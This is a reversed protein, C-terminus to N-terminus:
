NVYVVKLVDRVFVFSIKITIHIVSLVNEMQFVNEVIILKLIIYLVILVIIIGNVFVCIIMILFVFPDLIMTVYKIINSFMPYIM